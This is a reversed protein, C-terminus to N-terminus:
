KPTRMIKENDDNEDSDLQFAKKQKKGENDKKESVM